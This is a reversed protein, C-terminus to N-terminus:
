LRVTFTGRGCFPRGNLDMYTHTDRNCCTCCVCVCVCVRRDAPDHIHFLYRKIRYPKPSRFHKVRVTGYQLALEHAPTVSVSKIPSKRPNQHYIEISNQQTFKFYEHTEFVKPCIDVFPYFAKNAYRSMLM